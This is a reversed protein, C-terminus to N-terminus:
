QLLPESHLAYCTLVKGGEGIGLVVVMQQQFVNGRQMRAHAAHPPPAPGLAGDSLCQLRLRFQDNPPLGHHVTIHM